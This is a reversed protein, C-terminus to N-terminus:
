GDRQFPQPTGCVSCTPYIGTIPPDLSEDVVREPRGKRDCVHESVLDALEAVWFWNVSRHRKAQTKRFTIRVRGVDTADVEATMTEPSDPGCPPLSRQATGIDAGRICSLPIPAMRVIKCAM